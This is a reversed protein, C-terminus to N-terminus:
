IRGDNEIEETERKGWYHGAMKICFIQFKAMVGLFLIMTPVSFYPPWEIDQKLFMLAFYLAGLSMVVGVIGLGRVVWWLAATVLENDSVVRGILGHALTCGTGWAFAYYLGTLNEYEM